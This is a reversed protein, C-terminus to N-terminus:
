FTVPAAVAAAEVPAPIAVGPILPAANNAYPPLNEPTMATAGYLICVSGGYMALMCGYRLTNMFYGVCYHADKPSKANGDNDMDVASYMLTIVIVLLIQVLVAWTALYMCDQIYLQPGAGRPISHDKARTLQLARMRTAVFIVCLMPAYMVTKRSTEMVEGLKQGYGTWQRSTQSVFLLFYITFYQVCLNFVCVM